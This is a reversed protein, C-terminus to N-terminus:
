ILKYLIDQVRKDLLYKTLLVMIETNGPFITQNEINIFKNNGNENFHLTVSYFGSLQKINDKSSTFNIIDQNNKIHVFTNFNYALTAIHNYKKNNYYCINMKIMQIRCTKSIENLKKSDYIKSILFCRFNKPIDFKKILVDNLEKMLGVKMIVGKKNNQIGQIQYIETCTNNLEDLNNDNDFIDTYEDDLHNSKLSTLSVFEEEM